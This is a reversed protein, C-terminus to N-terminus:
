RIAELILRPPEVPEAGIVYCAPLAELASAMREEDRAYIRALPEGQQVSDGTKKLVEIGVGRDVTDSTKARGAGLLMSVLGLRACDMRQVYGNGTAACESCLPALQADM